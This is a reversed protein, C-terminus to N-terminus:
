KHTYIHLHAYELCMDSSMHPAQTEGEVIHTGVILSLKDLKTALVKLQQAVKSGREKELFM